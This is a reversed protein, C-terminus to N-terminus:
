RSSSGSETSTPPPNRTRASTIARVASEGASIGIPTTVANKPAGNKATTRRVELRIAAHRRQSQLAHGDLQATAVDDLAHRERDLAALPHRQDARVARSLRAQHPRDGPEHGVAALDTEVALRM